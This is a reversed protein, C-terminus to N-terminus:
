QKGKSKKWELPQYQPSLDESQYPTLRERGAKFQWGNKIINIIIIWSDSTPLAFPFPFYMETSIIIIIIIIYWSKRGVGLLPLWTLYFVCVTM